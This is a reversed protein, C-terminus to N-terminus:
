LVCGNAASDLQRVVRSPDFPRVSLSFAFDLFVGAVAVAVLGMPVLAGICFARIHDRTYVVASILVALVLITVVILITSAAWNPMAFLVAFAVSLVLMLVLLDRMSFQSADLRPPTTQGSGDTSSESPEVPM